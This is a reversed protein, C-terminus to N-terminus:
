ALVKKNNRQSRIQKLKCLNKHLFLDSSSFITTQPRWIVSNGIKSLGYELPVFTGLNM